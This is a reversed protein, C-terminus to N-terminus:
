ERFIKEKADSHTFQVAQINIFRSTLGLYEAYVDKLIHFVLSIVAAFFTTLLKIWMGLRYRKLKVEFLNFCIKYICSCITTIFSDCFKNMRRNLCIFISVCMPAICYVVYGMM